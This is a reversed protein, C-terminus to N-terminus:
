GRLMIWEKCSMDDKLSVALIATSFMDITIANLHMVIIIYFWRRPGM